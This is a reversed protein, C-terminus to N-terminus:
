SLPFSVLISVATVNTDTIQTVPMKHGKIQLYSNKNLHLLKIPKPTHTPTKPPAHLKLYGNYLVMHFSNLAQPLVNLQGHSYM